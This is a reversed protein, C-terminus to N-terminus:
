NKLELSYICEASAEKLVYDSRRNKLITRKVIQYQFPSLQELSYHKRRWEKNWSTGYEASRFVKSGSQFVKVTSGGWVDGANNFLGMVGYGSKNKVVLALRGDERAEIVFGTENSIAELGNEVCTTQKVEYEGIFTSWPSKVNEHSPNNVISLAQNLKIKYFYESLENYYQELRMLQLLLTQRDTIKELILDGYFNELDFEAHIAAFDKYTIQDRNVFTEEYLKRSKKSLHHSSKSTIYWYILKFMGAEFYNDLDKEKGDLLSIFHEPHRFSFRSQLVAKDIFTKMEDFSISDFDKTIRRLYRSVNSARVAQEDVWYLSSTEDIGQIQLAVGKQLDVAEEETTGLLHSLEHVLLALVEVRAREEILKPAMSYPSICIANPISAYVSGDVAKGASDRCPKDMLIEIDVSELVDILNAKGAFLKNYLTSERTSGYFLEHEANVIARLDRKSEVIIDFLYSASVTNDPLTGGGGSSIDGVDSSTGPPSVVEGDGFGEDKKSSCSTFILALVLLGLVKM